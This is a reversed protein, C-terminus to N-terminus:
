HNLLQNESYRIDQEMLQIDHEQQAAKKELTLIERGLQERQAASARSYNIRATKLEEEMNNLQNQM